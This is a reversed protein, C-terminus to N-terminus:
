NSHVPSTEAAHPIRTRQGPILGTNGANCPPNRIVPGGPFDRNLVKRQNMACCGERPGRGLTPVKKKLLLPFQPEYLASHYAIIHTICIHEWSSKGQDEQGPM